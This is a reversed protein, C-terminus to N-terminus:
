LRCILGVPKLPVIVRVQVPAGAADVHVGVGPANVVLPVDDTGNATLTVVMALEATKGRARLSSLRGGIEGTTGVADGSITAHSIKRNNSTPSVANERRGTWM